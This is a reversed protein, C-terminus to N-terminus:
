VSHSSSHLPGRVEYVKCKRCFQQPETVEELNTRGFVKQPWQSSRCSQFIVSPHILEKKVPLTAIHHGLTCDAKLIREFDLHLLSHCTSGAAREAEFEGDSQHVSVCLRQREGM